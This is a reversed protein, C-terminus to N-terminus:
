LDALIIHGIFAEITPELGLAERMPPITISPMGIMPQYTTEPWDIQQEGAYSRLAWYPPSTCFAHFFKDPLPLSSASANILVQRTRNM